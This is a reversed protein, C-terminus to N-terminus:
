FRASVLQGTGQIATTASGKLDAFALDCAVHDRKLRNAVSTVFTLDLSGVSAGHRRGFQLEGGHTTEATALAASGHLLDPHFGFLKERLLLNRLPRGPQRGNQIKYGVQTM